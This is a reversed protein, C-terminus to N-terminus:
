ESMNTLIFKHSYAIAAHLQLMTSIDHHGFEFRYSGIDVLASLYLKGDSKVNITYTIDNEFEILVFEDKNVLNVLKWKELGSKLILNLAIEKFEM